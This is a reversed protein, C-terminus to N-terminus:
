LLELQDTEKGFLADVRTLLSNFGHKRFGERLLRLNFGSIECPKITFTIPADTIITALKKALAAQEADTALKLATKEPLKDLSQYLNDFTEFEQLLKAAGKPGIGTVGPYGDSNDGILAKYDIFQRPHVGYKEEVAEEDFLKTKTFGTIPMLVKVQPNVLQLLDRDGTVILVETKGDKVAETAITGILDDAEYGDLAFMPIGTKEVIDYVLPLQAAFDEEMEGRDAHYGAFMQMRFTPAGRDFCIVLHDPKHDAYITFIMSFFGFVVNITEGQPNTLPPYAHYARHLLANGDIVLLKNM